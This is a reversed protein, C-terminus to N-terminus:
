TLKQIDDRRKFIWGQWGKPMVWRVKIFSFYLIENKKKWKAKNIIGCWIKTYKWQQSFVNKLFIFRMSVKTINGKSVKVLNVLSTNYLTMM